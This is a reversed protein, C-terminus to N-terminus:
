KKQKIIRIMKTMMQYKKKIILKILNENQYIKPQYEKLKQEKQQQQQLQQQHNKM